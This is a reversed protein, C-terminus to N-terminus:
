PACARAVAEFLRKPTFPKALFAATYRTLLEDVEDGWHGSSLVVPLSPHSQRLAKLTDPGSYGPMTLDLIVCDFAETRLRVLADKGSAVSTANVGEFELLRVIVDRVADDDDVM